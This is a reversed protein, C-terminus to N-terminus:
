STEDVSSLTHVWAQIVIHIIMVVMNQLKTHIRFDYSPHISSSGCDELKDSSLVVRAMCTFLRSDFMTSVM